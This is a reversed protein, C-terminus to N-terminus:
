TRNRGNRLAPILRASNLIFATESGVHVLAALVPGLLGLAALVMGLCDIVVTGAFNFLVIRRARRAVHITRALDNLDSSILVVDTSERAIETGSGMAIGVDAKALAPADNVGDGVMALRHGKSREADIVALKEDPLLGARFDGIGVESAVTRATAEGDGTIMLTRLGRRGLEAIAERSTKRIEDALLITGAYAGDISVHVASASEQEGLADPAGPVLLRNGAAIRHGGVLATVGRGPAYDFDEPHAMPIGEDRARTLIAQGLPHESWSEASAAYGLLEPLSRGEAMHVGVVTPTGTTITGTKDFVVTDVSSLMELHAGDKVFAGSRATRAIAALVALPTGAAIGCAGAVVVVSITATLDHTLLFTLAAGGIALYVLWAALRDALRQVPPESEQAKRVAEIIRGFSSEAGVSEARIEVAGSQNISGSHVESGADIEIPLSEGTIRSQDVTSRGTVVTGDVPIRGGPLVVVLQGPTVQDLPVTTVTDGDRVQVSDPLFSMLDTLADRGRDMSLDELLEAALVFTTIVLSTVLEGIAAAAVIAILMSLEMSMRLNRIDEWAETLIPWCGIGLGLGAVWSSTLGSMTLAACFAVVLTRLLYTRDVRAWLSRGSGTTLPTMEQRLTPRSTETM